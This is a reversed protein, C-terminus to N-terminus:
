KKGRFQNQLGGFVLDKVLDSKLFEHPFGLEIASLTDLRQLQDETLKVETAALCEIVQEPKSAGVLPIHHAPQHLVWALAVQSPKVHLEEAISVVERTIQISRESRRISTEAVRQGGENGTLYRGTLAGGALPGWDLISMGFANAMPVLDREPTRQILSYEVQIAV